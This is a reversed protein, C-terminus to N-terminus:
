TDKTKARPKRLDPSKKKQLKPKFIQNGWPTFSDLVKAKAARRARLFAERMTMGYFFAKAAYSHGISLCWVNAGGREKHALTPKLGHKIMFETPLYCRSFTTGPASVPELATIAKDPDWKM